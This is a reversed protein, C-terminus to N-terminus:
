RGVPEHYASDYGDGRVLGSKKGVSPVTVLLGNVGEEGVAYSKEPAAEAAEGWCRRERRHVRGDLAFRAALKGALLSFLLSFLRNKAGTQQAVTSLRRLDLPKRQFERFPFCPIREVLVPFQHERFLSNSTPFSPIAL